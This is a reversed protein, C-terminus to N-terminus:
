VTKATSEVAYSGATQAFDFPDPGVFSWSADHLPPIQDRVAFNRCNAALNRSKARFSLRPVKM